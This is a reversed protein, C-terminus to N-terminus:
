GARGVVQQRRWQDGRAARASALRGAAASGTNGALDRAAVRYSYSTGAQATSDTYSTVQPGVTALYSGSRYIDYASVGINDTAPTWSLVTAPPHPQTRTLHGPASPATADPAFNYVHVDFTRGKSDTPTVTVTRGTVTVRLFHYVHSDDPPPSAAGCATGHNRAYFWGVAYADTSACGSAGVASASGGGGGTVYSTVGGPVAINRQYGHAHGNFVLDVGNNNLLQELSGASGPTSGLYRDSPEASTDSYLPFHFFAFKLGGQHAALDNVLWKHEASSATWHADHDVQYIACSSGCPGGTATGPNTDSWSADLLYFRAGGTSFAYYSTPYSAATSGDISPYAVPAYIGDASTLPEPWNSLFTTNRGHNGSVPFLPVSQGPVAWYSPGFVASINMAVQNLDGYTAQSGDPYGLDGASIAFRAGSQAIQHDVGKQNANIAGNNVGSNTTDGWDALVDFTLPGTGAATQLTTFAPAPNAAGLLDVPSSGGTTVRYCYGTSASLGTVAVSNQYETASGVKFSTGKAATVSHAGCSGVPGYSVAEQGQATTAWTVEVSSATLDTLYPARTLLASAGPLGAPGSAAPLGASASVLPGLLAAAAIGLAALVWGGRRLSRARIVQGWRTRRHRGKGCHPEGTGFM